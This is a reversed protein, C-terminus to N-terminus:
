LVYSTVFMASSYPIIHLNFAAHKHSKAPSPPPVQFNLLRLFNNSTPKPTPTPPYLPVPPPPIKLVVFPPASPNYRVKPLGIPRGFTRRASLDASGMPVGFGLRTLDPLGLM